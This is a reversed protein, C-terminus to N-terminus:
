GDALNEQKAIKAVVEFVKAILFSNDSNIEDASSIHEKPIIIATQIEDPKIDFRARVEAKEDDGIPSLGDVGNLIVEIRNSDVGTDTLNDKAAEAVAIISDSYHNNIIGNIQKGPFTTLKKSQPFM